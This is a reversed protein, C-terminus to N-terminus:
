KKKLKTGTVIQRAQDVLWVFFGQTEDEAFKAHSVFNVPVIVKFLMKLQDASSCYMKVRELFGDKVETREVKITAAAREEVTLPETTEGYCFDIIKTAASQEVESGVALEDLPKLITMPQCNIEGQIVKEAMDASLGVKVLAAAIRMRVPSEGKDFVLKCREQVQYLGNMDPQGDVHDCVIRPNTPRCGQSWLIEAYVSLMEESVISNEVKIREECYKGLRQAPLLRTLSQKVSSPVPMEPREVKETKKTTDLSQNLKNLKDLASM